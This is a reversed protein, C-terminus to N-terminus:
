EMVVLYSGAAACTVLIVESLVGTREIESGYQKMAVIQVQLISSLYKSFGPIDSESM